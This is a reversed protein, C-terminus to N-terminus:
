TMSKIRSDSSRSPYSGVRESYNVVDDSITVGIMGTNRGSYYFTIQGVVIRNEADNLVCNSAFTMIFVIVSYHFIKIRFFEKYITGGLQM